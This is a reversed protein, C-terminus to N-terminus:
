LIFIFPYIKLPLLEALKIKAEGWYPDVRIPCVKSRLLLYKEKLLLDGKKPLTKKQGPFCVPLLLFQKGMTFITSLWSPTGMWRVFNSNIRFIMHKADSSLFQYTSVPVVWVLSCLHATRHSDARNVFVTLSDQPFRFTFIAWNTCNRINLQVNTLISIHYNSLCESSCKYYDFSKSTM